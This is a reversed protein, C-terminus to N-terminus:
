VHDQGDDTGNDARLAEVLDQPLGRLVLTADEDNFQVMGETMAQRDFEVSWLRTRAKFKVLSNLARRDPVFGDCLRLEPDALLEVLEDPAAPHLENAFTQFSIPERRKALDDCISKAKHLFRDREQEDMGQRTAFDKVVNVLATTDVRDQVTTDCGLFEKFYEAVDGKGKLFGIYREEAALWGTINIRGAFRFGDLDLHQADELELGETLTAGLKDNVIAVMLFTRGDREFHAFFVHGGTAAAKRAAQVALTQMMQLTLDMFAASGGDVFEKLYRQVPYHDQKISFKGHAKSARKSYLNHLEDIVRQVTPTIKRGDAGAAVQFAGEIKQLDHVIVHKIVNPM